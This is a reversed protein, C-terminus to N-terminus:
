KGGGGGGAIVASRKRPRVPSPTPALYSSLVFLTPMKLVGYIGGKFKYFDAQMNTISGAKFKYYNVIVQNLNLFIETFM